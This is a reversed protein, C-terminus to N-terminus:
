DDFEEDREDDKVGYKRRAELSMEATLAEGKLEWEARNALVYNYFFYNADCTNPLIANM